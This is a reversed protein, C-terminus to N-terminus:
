LCGSWPFLNSYKITLAAAAPNFSFPSLQARSRKVIQHSNWPNAYKCGAHALCHPVLTVFSSWLIGIIGIFGIQILFTGASHIHHSSLFIKFYNRDRLRFPREPSDSLLDKICLLPWPQTSTNAFGVQAFKNNSLAAVNNQSNLISLSCLINSEIKTKFIRLTLSTMTSKLMSQMSYLSCYSKNLNWNLNM